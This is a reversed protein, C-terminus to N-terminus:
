ISMGLYSTKNFIIKIKKIHTAALTETFIPKNEFSSKVILKGMKKEKSCLKIDVRNRINELCKGFVSNNM